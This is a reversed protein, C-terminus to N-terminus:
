DTNRWRKVIQGPKDKVNKFVQGKHLEAGIALVTELENEVIVNQARPSVVGIHVIIRHRSRQHIHEIHLANLEVNDRGIM